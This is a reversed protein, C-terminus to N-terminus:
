IRLVTTEPRFENPPQYLEGQHMWGALHPEALVSVAVVVHLTPVSQQKTTVVMTSGPRAETKCCSRSQPANATGCMHSMHACCEREPATMLKETAACGLLPAAVWLLALFASAIATSRRM